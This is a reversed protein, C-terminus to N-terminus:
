TAGIKRQKETYKKELNACLMEDHEASAEPIAIPEHKSFINWGHDKQASRLL